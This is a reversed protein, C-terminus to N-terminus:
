KNLANLPGAGHRCPDADAQEAEAGDACTHCADQASRVAAMGQNGVEIQNAHRHTVKLARSRNGNRVPAKGGVGLLHHVIWTHM